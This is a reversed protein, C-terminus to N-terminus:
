GHWAPQGLATFADVFYVSGAPLLADTPWLLVVATGTNDLTTTVSRAMVSPGGSIGLSEDTNLRIVVSGGSLPNGAADQFMLSISQQIAM